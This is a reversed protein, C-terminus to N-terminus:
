IDRFVEDWSVLEGTNAQHRAKEISKLYKPDQAALYDEYADLDILVAKDQGRKKVILTEGESVAQIADSLNNRLDTADITKITM